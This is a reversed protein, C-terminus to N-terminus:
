LKLIGYFLHNKAVRQWFVMLFDMKLESEPWCYHPLSEANNVTKHWKIVRQYTVRLVM